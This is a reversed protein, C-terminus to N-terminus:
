KPAEEPNYKAKYGPGCIKKLLADYDAKSMQAVDRRRDPAPRGAAQAQRFERVAERPSPAAAPARPIAQQRKVAERFSAIWKWPVTGLTIREIEARLFDIDGCEKMAQAVARAVTQPNGIWGAKEVWRGTLAHINQFAAGDWGENWVRVM